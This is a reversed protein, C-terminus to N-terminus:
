KRALQNPKSWRIRAVFVENDTNKTEGRWYETTTVWTENEDVETIGFNGLAVGDQPVIVRETARIVELKEPNVQAMLLPARHRFVKDNDAGKRTYVLFLGDSHRVWHQQTNYSGLVTKDDFKWERVTEFHLGDSSKTVYATKDARLTLFYEGEFVTISPEYLGRGAKLALEDGHELYTLKEGDFRCRVVTTVHGLDDSNMFNGVDFTERSAAAAQQDNMKYYFIPLLVEGNPMELWQVCGAVPASLHLSDHDLAPLTLQQYPGWSNTVPDYVAYAVERRSRDPHSDDSYFFSKGINLVKQTAQHWQPTMDSMSRRYGQGYDHIKLSPIVRPTTWTKGTDYSFTEYLDYYVDSGSKLKQSMTMIAYPTGQPVYAARAQTWIFGASEGAQDSGRTVTELTVSYDLPQATIKPLSALFMPFVGLFPLCYNFVTMLNM